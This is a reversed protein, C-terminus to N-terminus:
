YCGIQTITAYCALGGFGPGPGCTEQVQNAWAHSGTTCPYYAGGGSTYLKCYHASTTSWSGYQTWGTKCSAGDFRCFKDAGSSVVTGGLNTCQKSSHLGYVLDFQVSTVGTVDKCTVTGTTFDIKTIAKEGCDYVGLGLESLSHGHIAPNSGGYAYVGIGLLVLVGIVALSYFSKNSMNIQIKRVM